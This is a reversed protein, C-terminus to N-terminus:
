NDDETPASTNGLVENRMSDPDFDKGPPIEVVEHLLYITAGGLMSSIEKQYTEAKKRSAFNGFKLRIYPNAFWMYLKQKPFKQLLETRVKFAYNKDSTNLIMLRYGKRFKAMRRLVEINQEAEQTALLNMRYDQYAVVGGSLTDPVQASAHNVFLLFTLLMLLKM